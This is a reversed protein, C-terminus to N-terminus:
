TATSIRPHVIVCQFNNPSLWIASDVRPVESVPFYLLKKRASHAGGNTLLTIM